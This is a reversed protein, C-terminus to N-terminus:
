MVPEQAEDRKGDGASSMTISWFMVVNTELLEQTQNYEALSNACIDCTDPFDSTTHKM